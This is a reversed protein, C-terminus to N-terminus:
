YQPTSLDDTKGDLSVNQKQRYRKPLRDEFNTIIHDSMFDIDVYGIGEAIIKITRKRFKPAKLKLETFYPYVTTTIDGGVQSQGM